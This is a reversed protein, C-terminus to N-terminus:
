IYASFTIDKMSKSAKRSSLSFYSAPVTAHVSSMPFLALRPPESLRRRSRFTFPSELALPSDPACVDYERAIVYIDKPAGAVAFFTVALFLRAAHEYADVDTDPGLGEPTFPYVAQGNQLACLRFVSVGAVLAADILGM